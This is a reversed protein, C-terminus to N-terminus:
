EIIIDSLKQEDTANIYFFELYKEEDIDPITGGDQENIFKVTEKYFEKLSNYKLELKDDKTENNDM